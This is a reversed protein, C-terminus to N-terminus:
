ERPCCTVHGAQDEEAYGRYKTWPRGKQCFDPVDSQLPSRSSSRPEPDPSPEPATASPIGSDGSTRKRQLVRGFKKTLRRSPTFDEGGPFITVTTERRNDM